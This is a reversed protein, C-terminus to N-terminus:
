VDFCIVSIYYGVRSLRTIFSAFSLPLFTLVATLYVSSIM